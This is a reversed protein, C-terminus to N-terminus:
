IYSYVLLLAFASKPNRRLESTAFVFHVLEPRQGSKRGLTEHARAGMKFTGLGLSILPATTHATVPRPPLPVTRAVSWRTRTETFSRPSSSQSSPSPLGPCASGMGWVGCSGSCRKALSELATAGHSPHALYTDRPMQVMLSSLTQDLVDEEAIYTYPCHERTRSYINANDYCDSCIVRTGTGGDPGKHLYGNAPPM